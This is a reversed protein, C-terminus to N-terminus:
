IFYGGKQMVTADYRAHHRGLDGSKRNNALRNLRLDFFIDFSRTVQRQSPFEDTVPSNGACFALLVSIDRNSSAMIPQM